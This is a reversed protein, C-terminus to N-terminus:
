GWKMLPTGVWGPLGSVDISMYLRSLFMLTKELTPYWHAYLNAEKTVDQVELRKPYDLDAPAPYFTSIHDLIFKQSLFILREQIDELIRNIVGLFAQVSEGKEKISFLIESKLVHAASCLLEVEQARIFLPRLQTYLTDGFSELLNRMATSFTHFFMQYLDYESQCLRILYACGSRIMSALDPLKALNRINEDVSARLLKSRQQFYCYHCDSLLSQYERRRARGEIEQCLPRLSTALTRFRIYARTEFDEGAARAVCNRLSSVIHGKVMTLGRTQLQQFKMLYLRSESYSPNESIFSISADLRALTATFKPDLVSVNSRALLQSIDEIEDFHQLTDDVQRAFKTLSQQQQLLSECDHHLQGTKTSVLEHQATLADLARLTGNLHGMMEETINYYMELRELYLSRTLGM